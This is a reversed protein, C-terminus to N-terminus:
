DEVNLTSGNDTHSAEEEEAADADADNDDEGEYRDVYCTRL